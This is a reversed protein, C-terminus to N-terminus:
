NEYIRHYRSGLNTLVEYGITGAEQALDDISHHRGILEVWAGVHCLDSPVSSVDLTILDMSVRGVLPIKHEGLYAHANDSLSRLYGDAYGVSLTAIKKNKEVKYAAGYGVTEGATADRLQIIRAKLGVVPHMPNAQGATPNVGYLAVGPRALDFHYPHGLFIGSSNAFSANGQPIIQRADNFMKLQTESQPSDTDDASALHSMINKIELGSLMDPDDAIQRLEDPPLGLRLMGTDIHIDCPLPAGNAFIRWSAMEGLSGLVPVLIHEKYIEETGPILGGLIHIEADHLASRLRIGEDLQAVFFQRCGAAYLTKGVQEAGLGYGNAKVVAACEAGKITNQLLTYNKAIAALNITLVASAHTEPSHTNTM